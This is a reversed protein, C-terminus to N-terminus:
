RPPPCCCLQAHVQRPLRGPSAAHMRVACRRLLLAAYGKCAVAYAWLNEQLTHISQEHSPHEPLCANLHSAPHPASPALSCGLYTIPDIMFLRATYLILLELVGLSPFSEQKASRQECDLQRPFSGPM